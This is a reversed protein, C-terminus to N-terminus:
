NRSSASYAALFAPYDVLIGEAEACLRMAGFVPPADPVYLKIETGLKQGILRILDPCHVALGGSVVVNGGYLGTGHLHRILESVRDASQQLIRKATHDGDAAAEFAIPAFAAIYEQGMRYLDSVHEFFPGGLKQEALEATRCPPMLGDQVAALCRLVERGIDFGSGAGDFLYGWGGARRLSAGDWGFAVSGTGIIVAICRAHNEALGIVNQIDSEVTVPLDPYAATLGETLVARNNGSLAGAIGAYIRSVCPSLSRLRDIGTRLRLIATEATCVNPNTGELRLRELVTGDGTFLIFETKTGGGDIAIMTKQM